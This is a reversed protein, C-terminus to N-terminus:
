RLARLKSAITEVGHQLPCLALEDWGEPDRERFYAIIEELHAAYDKPSREDKAVPSKSAAGEVAAKVRGM